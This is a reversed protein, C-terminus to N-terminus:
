WWSGPLAWRGCHVRFPKKWRSSWSSGRAGTDDCVLTLLGVFSGPRREPCIGPRLCRRSGHSLVVPGHAPAPPHGLALDPFALCAGGAAVCRPNLSDHALCARLQAALCHYLPATAFWWHHVARHRASRKGLDHGKRPPRTGRFLEPGVFGPSRTVCKRHRVRPAYSRTERDDFLKLTGRSSPPAVLSRLLLGVVLFLYHAM